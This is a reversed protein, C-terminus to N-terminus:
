KVNNFPIATKFIYYTLGLMNDLQINSAQKLVLILSDIWAERPDKEQSLGMVIGYSNIKTLHNNAFYVRKLIHM